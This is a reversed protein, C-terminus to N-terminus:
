QSIPHGMLGWRLFVLHRMRYITERDRLSLIDTIFAVMNRILTIWSRAYERFEDLKNPDVTYRICCTFM